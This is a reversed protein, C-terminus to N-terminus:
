PPDRISPSSVQAFANSSRSGKFYWIMMPRFPFDTSRVTLKSATSNWWRTPSCLSCSRRRELALRSFTNEWIRELTSARNSQLIDFLAAVEVADLVPQLRKLFNLYKEIFIVQEETIVSLKLCKGKDFCLVQERCRMFIGIHIDKKVFFVLGPIKETARKKWLLVPIVCFTLSYIGKKFFFLYVGVGSSYLDLIVPEGWFIFFSGTCVAVSCGALWETTKREWFFISNFNRCCVWSRWCRWATRRERSMCICATTIRRWRHRRWM